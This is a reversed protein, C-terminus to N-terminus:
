KVKLLLKYHEAIQLSGPYQIDGFNVNEHAFDTFIQYMQRDQEKGWRRSRNTIRVGPQKSKMNQTIRVDIHNLTIYDYINNNM